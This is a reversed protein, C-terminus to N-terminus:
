VFKSCYVGIGFLENNDTKFKFESDWDYNLKNENKNLLRSKNPILVIGKEMFFIQISTIIEEIFSLLYDAAKNNFPIMEGCIYDLLQRMYNDSSWLGITLSFEPKTDTLETIFLIDTKINISENKNLITIHRDLKSSFISVLHKNVIQPVGDKVFYLVKRFTDKEILLIKNFHKAFMIPDYSKEIIGDFWISAKSTSRLVGSLYYIKIKENADVSRIKQALVKENILKINEALFILEPKFKMFVQIAEEGNDATLINFSRNYLEKFLNKFNRDSDVLLCKPLNIDQHVKGPLVPHSKKTRLETLINEFKLRFSTVEVPVLVIDSINISILFEIQKKEIKQILLIIKLQTYSYINRIENLMQESASDQYKYVILDPKITNLYHIIENENNVKHLLIYNGSIIGQIMDAENKDKDFLLIKIDKM